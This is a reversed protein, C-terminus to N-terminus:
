VDSVSSRCVVTSYECLVSVCCECVGRGVSWAVANIWGNLRACDNKRDAARGGSLRWHQGSVWYSTCLCVNCAHLLRVYAYVCIIYIVMYIVGSCVLGCARVGCHSCVCVCVCCICANM